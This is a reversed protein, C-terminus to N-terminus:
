KQCNRRRDTAPPSSNTSRVRARLVDTLREDEVKSSEKTIVKCQPHNM